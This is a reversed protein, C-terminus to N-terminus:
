LVVQGDHRARIYRPGVGLVPPRQIIRDCLLQGGADIEIQVVETAVQGTRIPM